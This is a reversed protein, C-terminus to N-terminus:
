VWPTGNECGHRELEVDNSECAEECALLHRWADAEFIEFADLRLPDKFVEFRPARKKTNTKENLDRKLFLIVPRVWLITKPTKWCPLIRESNTTTVSSTMYQHGM